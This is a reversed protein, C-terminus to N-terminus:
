SLLEVYGQDGHVRIRQGTRIKRTAELVGVVAPIGYERAVVSGHTMLGGVEMVLGAANIFLPTWGPDTFPAVLIEGPSLIETNPDLVVRALGEVVGNSVPNGALAGEPLDAIAYKAVPIEGDSTIVRPPNIEWYRRFEAKRAAIIDAMEKNEDELAAVLEPFELHWVDDLSDMRGSSVLLQACELITERIYGMARILLFKPHERMPLLSRTVRILRRAVPKRLWGFPGRRAAAILRGAEEEAEAVLRQHKRRHEGPEHHELNGVIVQLLSSPNEQWRTRSIDIESPARMGYQDIFRKWSALFPAAGAMKSLEEVSFDMAHDLLYNKLEQSQRALDALDGVELDMGTTVNGHVGRAIIEVDAPKGLQQNFRALLLKAVIGAMMYPPLRLAHDLFVHILYDNAVKLRGAGAPASALDARMNHVFADIETNLRETTGEPRSFWLLSLAKAMLPLLWRAMTLESVQGKAHKKGQKFEDRGIVEKV